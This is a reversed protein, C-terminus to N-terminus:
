SLWTPACGVPVLGRFRAPADETWALAPLLDQFQFVRPNIPRPSRARVPTINPNSKPSWTIPSWFFFASKLGSSLLVVTVVYVVTTLPV